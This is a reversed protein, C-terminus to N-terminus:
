VGPFISCRGNYTHFMNDNLEEYVSREVLTFFLDSKSSICYLNCFTGGKFDCNFMNLLTEAFFFM